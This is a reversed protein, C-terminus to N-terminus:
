GKIEKVVREGMESSTVLTAGEQFIDATRCGALLVREVAKEVAQAVEHLQFTSELMMAVSLIAALPNAKNQGAIDPASGHVPEYIAHHNGLSASPLMGISGTVVAAEDSLIDGFLNATLIVDFQRPNKVLQMACNDVYLHELTVDRYGEAVENVVRRWLVSSELVNAKDVSTVKRRRRRALGFAKDAIRRIESTTYVETNFGREEGGSLKEIGKPEGFYIGGTLERVVVLDTGEVIEKKLPSSGALGPFVRAPRLNAFAGLERRLALLAQEPRKAYEVSDWAPGGVAGLLVCDSDKALKLTEPTLPVGHREFSAGGVLAEKMEFGLHFLSAVKRIVNVAERTVEPGIGDGPLVAIRYMM